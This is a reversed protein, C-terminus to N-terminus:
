PLQEPNSPASDSSYPSTKMLEKKIPHSLDPIVEIDNHLGPCIYLKVGKYSSMQKDGYLKESHNYYSFLDDSHKLSDYVKFSALILHPTHKRMSQGFSNMQREVENEFEEITIKM